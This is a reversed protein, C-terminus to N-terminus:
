DQHLQDGARRTGGGEAVAKQSFTVAISRVGSKDGGGSPVAM